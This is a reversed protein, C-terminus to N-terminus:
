HASPMMAFILLSTALKFGIAMGLFTWLAARSAGDGGMTVNDWAGNRIAVERVAARGAVGVPDAKAAQCSRAPAPVLLRHAAGGAPLIAGGALLRPPRRPLNRVTGVAADRLYHLRHRAQLGGAGRRLGLRGRPDRRGHGMMLCRTPFTSGLGTSASLDVSPEVTQTRPAM